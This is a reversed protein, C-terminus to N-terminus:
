HNSTAISPSTGLDDERFWGTKFVRRVKLSSYAPMEQGLPGGSELGEKGGLHLM